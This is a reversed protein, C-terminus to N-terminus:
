ADDLLIVEFNKYTQSYITELRQCLYKEHNFNPVIVSVLPSFNEANRASIKWLKVGSKKNKSTNMTLKLLNSIAKAKVPLLIKKHLTPLNEACFNEVKRIFKKVKAGTM